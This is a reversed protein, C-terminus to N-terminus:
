KGAGKPMPAQPYLKHLVCTYGEDCNCHNEALAQFDTEAGM